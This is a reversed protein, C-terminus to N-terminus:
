LFSRVQPKMAAAIANGVNWLKATYDESGTLVVPESSHFALCRVGDM